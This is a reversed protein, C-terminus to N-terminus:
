IWDGAGGSFVCFRDQPVDLAPVDVTPLGLLLGALVRQVGGHAVMVTDHDIREVVKAIRASLMAYSEGGPPVFGWKDARRAAFGAPDSLKLEPMTSGEWLGFTVERLRDDLRYDAPDLGATDRIIEMTERSRGLPSAVWDLDDPDVGRDALFRALARGNRAAQARGTANLPIDQQGQLRGEANWDTEGHRIHVLTLTPPIM